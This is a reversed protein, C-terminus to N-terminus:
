YRKQKSTTIKTEEIVTQFYIDKLLKEIYREAITKTIFSKEFTFRKNGKFRLMVNYYTAM